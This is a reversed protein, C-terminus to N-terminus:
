KQWVYGLALGGTGVLTGEVKRPWYSRHGVGFSIGITFGNAYTWDYGANVAPQLAFLHMPKILSSLNSLDIYGYGIGLQPQFFWGGKLLGSGSPYIKVGSSLLLLYDPLMGPSLNKQATPILFAWSSKSFTLTNTWSFYNNLGMLFSASVSGDVIVSAPHLTVGMPPREAFVSEDIEQFMVDDYGPQNAANTLLSAWLYLGAWIKRRM